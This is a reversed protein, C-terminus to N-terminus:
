VRAMASPGGQIYRALIARVELDLADKPIDLKKKAVMSHLDLQSLRAIQAVSKVNGAAM